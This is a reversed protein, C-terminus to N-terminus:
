APFYLLLGAIKNYKAESRKKRDALAVGFVEDQSRKNKELVRFENPDPEFSIISLSDRHRKWRENVGWRAGIDCYTTLIKEKM